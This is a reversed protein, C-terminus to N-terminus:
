EHRPFSTISTPLEAISPSRRPNSAMALVRSTLHKCLKSRAPAVSHSNHQQFATTNHLSIAYTLQQALTILLTCSNCHPPQSFNQFTPNCRSHQSPSAAPLKFGVTIGSATASPHAHMTTTGLHHHLNASQTSLTSILNFRSLRKSSTSRLTIAHHASSPQLM